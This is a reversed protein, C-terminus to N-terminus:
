FAPMQVRVTYRGDDPIHLSYSGDVDTSTTVQKKTATDTATVGAGPIPMSGSKVVGHITKGGPAPVTQGTSLHGHFVVIHFLFLFHFVYRSERRGKTVPFPLGLSKM